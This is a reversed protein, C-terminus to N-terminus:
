ISVSPLAIAVRLTRGKRYGNIFFGIRKRAITVLLATVAFFGLSLPIGITFPAAQAGIMAGTLVALTVRLAPSYNARDALECRVSQVDEISARADQNTVM